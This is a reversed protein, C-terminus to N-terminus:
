NTIALYGIENTIESVAGPPSAFFALTILLHVQSIDKSWFPLTISCLAESAQRRVPAGLCAAPTM